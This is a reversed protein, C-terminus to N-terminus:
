VFAVTSSKISKQKQSWAILEGLKAEFQVPTTITPAYKTANSKPLFAIMASLKEFGHVSLLREVAKRQPPIAFLRSYSPNVEKFLDIILPINPDSPAEAGTTDKTKDVTTTKNPTGNKAALHATDPVTPTGNKASRNGFKKHAKNVTLILGYPATKVNIYGHKKLDAVWRRYTRVSIGLDEVVEEYKIPKGGLVKGIGEESISTMHDLLWMYLWVARDMADVHKPELLNNKIEIGFGKMLNLGLPSFM